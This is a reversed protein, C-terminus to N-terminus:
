RTIVIERSIAMDVFADRVKIRHMEGCIKCKIDKTAKWVRALNAADTAVDCECQRNTAPCRFMLFATMLVMHTKM